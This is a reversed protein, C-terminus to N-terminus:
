LWSSNPLQIADPLWRVQSADLKTDLQGSILVVDVRPQASQYRPNQKLWLAAAQLVRKQKRADVSEALRLFDDGAARRARVEVFVLSAPPQWCVLDLEGLKSRVNRQLTALGQAALWESSLQEARSGFSQASELAGSVPMLWRPLL